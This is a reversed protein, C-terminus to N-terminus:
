EDRAESELAATIRADLEGVDDGLDISAIDKILDTLTSIRAEYVKARDRWEIMKARRWESEREVDALQQRLDAITNDRARCESESASMIDACRKDWMEREREVATGSSANIVVHRGLADIEHRGELRSPEAQPTPRTNWAAVPIWVSFEGLTCTLNSCRVHGMGADTRAESGCFPCPKLEAETM